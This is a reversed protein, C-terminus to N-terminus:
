PLEQWVLVRHSLSIIQRSIVIEGIQLILLLGWPCLYPSLLRPSVDQSHPLIACPMLQIAYLSNSCIEPGTKKDVSLLILLHNLEPM